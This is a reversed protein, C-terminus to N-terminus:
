SILLLFDLFTRAYGVGSKPFRYLLTKGNQTIRVYPDHTESGVFVELEGKEGVLTVGYYIRDVGKGGDVRVRTKGARGRMAIYTEDKGLAEKGPYEPHGPPFRYRALRVDDLKLDDLSLGQRAFVRAVLTLAHVSTDIALGGGSVKPNMLWRRFPTKYESELSWSEIERADVAKIKGIKQLLKTRKMLWMMADSDMFFDVGFIKGPYRKALARMKSVQPIMTLPKDVWVPVNRKAWREAIRYHYRTPVAAIVGDIKIKRKGKNGEDVNLTGDANIRRDFDKSTFYNPVGRRWPLGITERRKRIFGQRAKPDARDVIVFEVNPFAKRIEAYDERLFRESLSGLGGYIVLTIRRSTSLVRLFGKRHAEHIARSKRVTRIRVARVRDRHRQIFDEAKKLNEKFDGKQSLQAAYRNAEEYVKRSRRSGHLADISIRQLKELGSHRREGLRVEARSQGEPKTPAEDDTSRLKLPASEARVLSVISDGDLRYGQIAAESVIWLHSNRKFFERNGWLKFYHTKTAPQIDLFEVRHYGRSQLFQTIRDQFRDLQL